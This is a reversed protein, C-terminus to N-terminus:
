LKGKTVIEEIYVNNNRGKRLKLRLTDTVFVTDPQLLHVMMILNDLKNNIIVDSREQVASTIVTSIVNWIIICFLIIIFYSTQRKM